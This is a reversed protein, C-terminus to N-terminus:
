KNVSEKFAKGPTFKPVIKEPVQIAEGTLVNRSTRAARKVPKFTGFNAIAVEEGSAVTKAIVDLVAQVKRDNAAKSGGDKATAEFVADFLEGKNM